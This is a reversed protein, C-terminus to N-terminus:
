WPCDFLNLEKKWNLNGWQQPPLNNNPIFNFRALVMKITIQLLDDMGGISNACVLMFIKILLSIQWYLLIWPGFHFIFFIINNYFCRYYVITFSFFGFLIKKKPLLLLIFLFCFFFFVWLTSRGFLSPTTMQASHVYLLATQDTSQPRWKSVSFGFM